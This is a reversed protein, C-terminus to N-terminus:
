VDCATRKIADSASVETQNVSYLSAMLLLHVLVSRTILWWRTLAFFQDTLM